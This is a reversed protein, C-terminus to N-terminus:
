NAAGIQITQKINLPLYTLTLVPPRVEDIRYDHDLVDGESVTYTRNQRALIIVAKEGQEALKGIYVFPVPPATPKAAKMPRPAVYWSKAAFMDRVDEPLAERNLKALVLTGAPQDEASREQQPHRTRLADPRVIADDAEGQGNTAAVAALTLALAAGLLWGRQKASIAM